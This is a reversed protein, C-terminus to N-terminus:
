LIESNTTMVLMHCKQHMKTKYDQLLRRCNNIHPILQVLFSSFSNYLSTVKNKVSTIPHMKWKFKPLCSRSCLGIHINILNNSIDTILYKSFWQCRIIDVWIIMYILTLWWIVWHGGCHVDCCHKGDLCLEEWSECGECIGESCLFVFPQVNYFDSSGM